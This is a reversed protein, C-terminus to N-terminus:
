PKPHTTGDVKSIKKAEPITVNATGIGIFSGNHTTHHVHAPTSTTMATSICHIFCLLPVM